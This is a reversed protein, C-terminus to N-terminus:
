YITISLRRSPLMIKELLLPAEKSIAIATEKTGKEFVVDDAIALNDNSQVYAEAVPGEM